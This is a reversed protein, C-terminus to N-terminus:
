KMTEDKKKKKPPQKIHSASTWEAIKAPNDEYINPVIGRLRRLADTLEQTVSEINATAGIKSDKIENHESMLEELDEIRDELVALFGSPMGFEILIEKNEVVTANALFANAAALIKQFSSGQPMRFLEGVEPHDVGAGRATRNIKRMYDLLFEVASEKMKTKTTGDNSEKVASSAEILPVKDIFLKFNVDGKSGASFDAANTAGFDRVRFFTNFLEDM